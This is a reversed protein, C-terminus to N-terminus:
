NGFGCFAFTKEKLHKQQNAVCKTNDAFANLHQSHAAAAKNEIQAKEEVHQIKDFNRHIHTQIEAVGFQILQSFCSLFYLFIPADAHLFLIIAPKTGAM